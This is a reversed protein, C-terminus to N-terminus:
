QNNSRCSVEFTKVFDQVNSLFRQSFDGNVRVMISEGSLLSSFVYGVAYQLMCDAFDAYSDTALFTVKGAKRLNRVWDIVKKPTRKVYKVVDNKM